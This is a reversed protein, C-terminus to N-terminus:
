IEEKVPLIFSFSAGEGITSRAWVRGHHLEVISRVIALGLGIGSGHPEVREFKGFIRDLFEAPIGPGQDTITVKLYRTNALIGPESLVPAEPDVFDIEIQITGSDPSYKIANDLLNSFVRLLRDPDGAVPPLRSPIRRVVKLNKKNLLLSMSQLSSNIIDNLDVAKLSLEMKGTEMRSVEILNDIMRNLRDMEEQAILLFRRQKEEMRGAATEVLLSIAERIAALPARLDHSVMAVFETRLREAQKLESIDRLYCLLIHRNAQELPVVRLDCDIERGTRHQLKVEQHTPTVFRHPEEIFQTVTKRYAPAVLRDFPMRGLQLASYGSLEEFRRNVYIIQKNEIICIGDAANEMVQSSVWPDIDRNFGTFATEMVTGVFWTERDSSKRNVVLKVPVLRGNNGILHTHALTCSTAGAEFTRNIVAVESLPLLERWNKAQLQNGNEYALLRVLARNAFVIRDQADAIWVGEQLYNLFDSDFLREATKM